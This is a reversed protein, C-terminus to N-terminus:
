LGSPLVERCLHVNNNCVFGVVHASMPSPYTFMSVITRSPPHPFKDKYKNTADNFVRMDHVSGPCGVLVFTFRMDFDCVALVNQTTFGKRCLHQVVKDNPVM